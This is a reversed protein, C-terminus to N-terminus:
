RAPAEVAEGTNIKKPDGFKGKGEGPLIVLEAPTGYFALDAKGDGNFDGVALSQIEKTVSVNVPRMRRDNDLHNAENAKKDEPADAEGPKKSSLLLDIRSRGNNVVVIDDVKDGDLDRVLLGTIRPDVKYVEVPLFGFYDALRPEDAARGAQTLGLILTAATALAQARRGASRHM